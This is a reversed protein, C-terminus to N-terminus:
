ATLGRRGGLCRGRGRRTSPRIAVGGLRSRFAPPFVGWDQWASLARRVNSEARTQELRGRELRQLWQRGLRECADPLLEQFTARYRSAGKASSNSNYLIDSILFLRALAGESRLKPEEIARIIGRALPAAHSAAHELCFVMAEAVSARSPTLRQLFQELQQLECGSNTAVAPGISANPANGSALSRAPMPTAYLKKRDEYLTFHRVLQARRVNFMSELRSVRESGGAKKLYADIEKVQESRLPPGSSGDETANLLAGAGANGEVDCALRVWSQGNDDDFVEFTCERELLLDKMETGPEVIRSRELDAWEQQLRREGALRALSCVTNDFSRLCQVVVHCFRGFQDVRGDEPPRYKRRNEGFMM